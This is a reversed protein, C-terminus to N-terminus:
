NIELVRAVVIGTQKANGTIYDQLAAKSIEVQKNKLSAHLLYAKGNEKYVFGTHAIDLGDISTTIGIIDGTQLKDYISSIKQEPIYFIQRSSIINEINSIENVKQNDSALQKYASPHTSMFNIKKNYPVGGIVETIDKVVGKQENESIWDTFYHLRSTYGDNLGNRYRIFELEKKYADLDTDGKKLLRSMVLVNEVFTVCDFGTVKIVLRERGPDEDLSGAVYETKIFSKGIGAIIENLPLEKLSADFSKLIKDCQREEYDDIFINESETHELNPDSGYQMFGFAALLFIAIIIIKSM